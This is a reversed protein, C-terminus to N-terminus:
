KCHENTSRKRLRRNSEIRRFRRDTIEASTTQRATDTTSEFYWEVKEGSNSKIKHGCRTQSAQRWCLNHQAARAQQKQHKHGPAKTSHQAFTYQAQDKLSRQQSPWCGSCRIVGRRILGRNVSHFGALLFMNTEIETVDLNEKGLFLVM